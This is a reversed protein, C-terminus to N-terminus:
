ETICNSRQVLVKSYDGVFGKAKASDSFDVLYFAPGNKSIVRGEATIRTQVPVSHNGVSANVIALISCIVFTHM